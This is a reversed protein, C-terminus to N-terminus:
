FIFATEVTTGLGRLASKTKVAPLARRLLKLIVIIVRFDRFHAHDM